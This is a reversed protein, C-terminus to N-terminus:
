RTLEEIIDRLEIANPIKHHWKGHGELFSVGKGKVTKCIIVRPKGSDNNDQLAATLEVHNHGDIVVTEWGFAEWKEKLYERPQLQAASGNWDVLATLNSLEQNAAVEAAEWTTGEQCEGDGLLVFTRSNKQLKIKDALAQGVAFPFGHGLSGSSSEVGAQKTRDPHGGLLSGNSGYEEIDDWSLIGKSALVVYLAACGHGKSLLFRDRGRDTGLDPITDYLAILIDLISFSSPIHGEGSRSVMKAIAIRLYDCDFDTRTSQSTM